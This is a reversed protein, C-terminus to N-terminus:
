RPLPFPTNRRPPPATQLGRGESEVAPECPECPMPPTTCAQLALALAVCATHLLGTRRVAVLTYHLIKM